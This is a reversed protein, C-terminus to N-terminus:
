VGGGSAGCQRLVDLLTSNPTTPKHGLSSSEMLAESSNGEETEVMRCIRIEASLASSSFKDVSQSDYDEAKQSRPARMTEDPGSTTLYIQNKDTQVVIGSYCQCIGTSTGTCHDAFAPQISMNSFSEDHSM